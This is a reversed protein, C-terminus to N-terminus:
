QGFGILRGRTNGFSLGGKAHGSGGGKNLDKWVERVPRGPRQRVRGGWTGRGSLDELLLTRSPDSKQELVKM